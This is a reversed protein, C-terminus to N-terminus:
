GRPLWGRVEDEFLWVAILIWWSAAVMIAPTWFGLAPWLWAVLLGVGVPLALGIGILIALVGLGILHGLRLAPM